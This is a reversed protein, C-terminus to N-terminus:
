ATRYYEVTRALGERIGVKPTWGLLAKARALDAASHRVDGARPPAHDARIPHGLVESLIELLGLLTIPEGGAVNIVRGRAAPAEAALLNADVANDVYCFDRSQLGDGYITPTRGALAAQVFRPVVAAYDSSPDQHPGFVNFYRLSVTEVGFLRDYVAAYHEAALKSVAYPSVPSPMMDEVKPLVETEGYASSSAAYVVRRVGAERAAELVLLTGHVNVRDTALPDEVSRQVSPIAAEHFVVEVGKMAEQLPEQDLVSAEILRVPGPIRDLNARRGTSLDDLVRVDHGARVLAAALNSGIFGAGGTVLMATM